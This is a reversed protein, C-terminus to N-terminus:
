PRPLCPVSSPCICSDTWAQARPQNQTGALIPPPPACPLGLSMMPTLCQYPATPCVVDCTDTYGQARPQNQAGFTVPAPTECAFFPTPCIASDTTPANPNPCICTNTNLGRAMMAPTECPINSPCFDTWGQARPQNKAGSIGAGSSLDGILMSAAINKSVRVVDVRADRKVYVVSPDGSKEPFKRTIIDDSPIEYYTAFGLDTYVRTTEPKTSPGLYGSLKLPAGFGEGPMLKSVMEDPSLDAAGGEARRAASRGTRGAM